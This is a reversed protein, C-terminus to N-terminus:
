HLSFFVERGGFIIRSRRSLLVTSLVLMEPPVYLVFELFLERAGTERYILSKLRASRIQVLWLFCNVSGTSHSADGIWIKKKTQLCRCPDSGNSLGASDESIDCISLLFFDKIVLCSFCRLLLPIVENICHLVM